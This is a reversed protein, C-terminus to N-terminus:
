IESGYWSALLEELLEAARTNFAAMQELRQAAGAREAPTATAGFNLIDIMERLRQLRVELVSSLDSAAQYFDRRDGPRAVREVVGWQVLLRANTSVSGKSVSLREALEELSCPEERLLLFGYIRGGIRPVGDAEFHRGVREVFEQEENTM